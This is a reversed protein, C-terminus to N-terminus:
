AANCDPCWDVGTPLKKGCGACVIGSEDSELDGAQEREPMTAWRKMCHALVLVAIVKSPLAAVAMVCLSQAAAPWRAWSRNLLLGVAAAASFAALVAWFVEMSRLASGEVLALVTVGLPIAFWFGFWLLLLVLLLVRGWSTSASAAGLWIALGAVALAAGIQVVGLAFATLDPAFHMVGFAWASCAIGVVFSLEAVVRTRARPVGRRTYRALEARGALALVWFCLGGFVLGSLSNGLVDPYHPFLRPPVTAGVITGFAAGGVVVLWTDGRLLLKRRMKEGEEDCRRGSHPVSAVWVRTEQWACRKM